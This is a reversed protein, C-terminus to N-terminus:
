SQCNTVSAYTVRVWEDFAGTSLRNSKKWGVENVAFVEVLPERHM